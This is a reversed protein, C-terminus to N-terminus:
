GCLASLGSFRLLITNSAPHSDSAPEPFVRQLVRSIGKGCRFFTCPFSEDCHFFAASHMIYSLFLFSIVGLSESQPLNRIIRPALGLCEYRLLRRNTLLSRLPNRIDAKGHLNRYFNALREILLNCLLM